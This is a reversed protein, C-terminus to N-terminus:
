VLVGIFLILNALQWVWQPIGLVAGSHEASEEALLAFPVPLVLLVGRAPSSVTQPAAVRM